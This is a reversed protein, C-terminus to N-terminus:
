SPEGRHTVRGVPLGGVFQIGERRMAWRSIRRNLSRTLVYYLIARKPFGSVYGFAIDWLARRIGYQPLDRFSGRGLNLNTTVTATKGGWGVYQSEYLKPM